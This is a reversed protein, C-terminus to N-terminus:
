CRKESVDGPKKKVGRTGIQSPLSFAVIEVFGQTGALDFEDVCTSIMGKLGRKENIMYYVAEDGELRKLGM